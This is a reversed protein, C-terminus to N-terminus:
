QLMKYILSLNIKTKNRMFHDLICSLSPGYLEYVICYYQDINFHDIINNTYQNNGLIEHMKVEHKIYIDGIKLVCYGKDYEALWISAFTGYCM